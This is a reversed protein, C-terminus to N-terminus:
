RFDFCKWFKLVDTDVLSETSDDSMGPGDIM